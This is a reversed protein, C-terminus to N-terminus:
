LKGRDKEEKGKRRETENKEKERDISGEKKQNAPEVETLNQQM